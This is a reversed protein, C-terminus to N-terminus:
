SMDFATRMEAGIVTDADDADESFDSPLASTEMASNEPIPRKAERTAIRKPIGPTHYQGPEGSM